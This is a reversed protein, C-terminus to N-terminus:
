FFLFLVRDAILIIEDLDTAQDSIWLLSSREGLIISVSMILVIKIIVTKWAHSLLIIVWAYCSIFCRVSEHLLQLLLLM